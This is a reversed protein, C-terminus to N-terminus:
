GGPAALWDRIVAYVRPHNLLAMHGLGALEAREIDAPQSAGASRPADSASAAHVLGDGLMAGMWRDTGVADDDGLRGYVLRLAPAAFARRASAPRATEGGRSVERTLDAAFARGKRLDKIGRSRADALRALPRTVKAVALAGAIGHGIKALPAGQHPTGLCVIMKVRSAWGLHDTCAQAHAQRAVLGGMSHGVLVWSAVQPAARALDDLLGALRAANDEVALGSNYRLYLATCDSERELLAGYRMVVGEPLTAAWPSTSWAESRIQWSMEDCALGHVFVCVRPRLGAASAPSAVLPLPGHADFLTLTVALASGTAALTDGFAGNLASRIMQERPGVRHDPGTRLREGHAALHTAASMGRRVGAYVGQTIADHVGQVIRTPLALGPLQRLSEFATGAIAQHMEEVRATITRAGAGIAPAFGAATGAQLRIMPVEPITTRRKAM